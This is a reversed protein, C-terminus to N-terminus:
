IKKCLRLMVVLACGSDSLILVCIGRLQIGKFYCLVFEGEIIRNASAYGCLWDASELNTM